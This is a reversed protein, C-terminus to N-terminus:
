PLNMILDQQYDWLLFEWFQIHLNHNNEQIIFTEPIIQYFIFYIGIKCYVKNLHSQHLISLSILSYM